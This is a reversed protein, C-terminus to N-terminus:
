KKCMQNLFGSLERTFITAGMKNLHSEDYFYLKNQYVSNTTDYVFFKSNNLALDRIRNEFASSHAAFNPSFVFVVQINNVVCQKLISQYATNKILSERAISYPSIEYKYKMILKPNKFNVPMSGCPLISDFKTPKRELTFNTKNLRSLCMFWSTFNRDGRNILEQNIYNYKVLPYLRDLRYTISTTPILEFPEDVSFIITKPKKNYKLLTKLIFNHFEVDSGPFAINYASQGTEKEIQSAIINMAGRSSGLVIIDKNIKGQLLLEIRNDVQYNPSLHIFVYFLKDIIFFVAAFLFLKRLFKKM